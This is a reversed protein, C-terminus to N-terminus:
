KNDEPNMVSREFESIFGDPAKHNWCDIPKMDIEFMMMLNFSETEKTNM